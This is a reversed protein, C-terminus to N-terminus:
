SDDACPSIFRTPSITAQLVSIGKDNALLTAVRRTDELYQSLEDMTITIVYGRESEERHRWPSDISLIDWNQLLTIRTVEGYRAIEDASEFM